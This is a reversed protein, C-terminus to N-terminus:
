PDARVVTNGAEAASAMRLALDRTRDNRVQWGREDEPFRSDLSVYYDHNTDHIHNIADVVSVRAVAARTGPGFQGDVFVGLAQQLHRVARAPGENVSEDFVMLDLGDPLENCHAINYFDMEYLGAVVDPENILNRVDDQTCPKHLYAQLANLTIGLETPGGQDIMFTKGESELIIPLCAKFTM